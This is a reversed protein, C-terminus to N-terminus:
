KLKKTGEMERARRFCRERYEGWEPLISNCKSSENVVDVVYELCEEYYGYPGSCDAPDHTTKAVWYYCSDIWEPANVFQCYYSDGERRALNVLCVAEDARDTINGCETRWLPDRYYDYQVKNSGNKYGTNGVATEKNEGSGVKAGEPEAQCEDYNYLPSCSGNVYTCYAKPGCDGKKEPNVATCNNTGAICCAGYSNFYCEASNEYILEKVAPASSVDIRQMLEMESLATFNVGPEQVNIKVQIPKIYFDSLPNMMLALIAVFVASILLPIASKAESQIIVIGESGGEGATTDDSKSVPQASGENPEEKSWDIWSWDDGKHAEM